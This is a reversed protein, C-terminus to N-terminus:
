EPLDFMLVRSEDDSSISIEGDNDVNIFPGRYLPWDDYSVPEGNVIPESDYEFDIVSGRLTEFRVSPVETVNFTPIREALADSFSDISDFHSVPAVQVVAGNKLFYSRLRRDGGMENIWEYEALPFYGIWADGGRGVIWGDSTERLDTLHRSFYADIHPHSVGQAIDFLVIIADREQAIRQYPSGGTWKNESTYTPKKEHVVREALLEPEEPFYTAMEDASWYPHLCFLMNFGTGPIAPTWQVEWSHQQVPQVLHGDISGVAYEPCVYTTKYVDKSRPLYRRIRTRSRKRELHVYPDTRNTGIAHLIRDPRYGSIALYAAAGHPRYGIRDLVINVADPRFDTNGFLLWAFTNSGNRFRELLPEPYVRSHAGVYVGGLTTAGFDAILLDLMSKANGVMKRDTAYGFLMSIPSLYFPLYHPSAFESLGRRRVLNFWYELYETAEVFNEESSRGNFWESGPEDPFAQTMLYMASYYMCWHNETDGRYPTYTKWQRRMEVVVDAPLTDRGAYYLLTMPLMWFMDGHPDSLISRLPAAYDEYADGRKMRCAVEIEGVRGCYADPSRDAFFAILHERRQEFEEIMKERAFILLHVVGPYYCRSSWRGVM